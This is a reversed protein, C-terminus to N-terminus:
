LSEPPAFFSAPKVSLLKGRRHRIHVRGRRRETVMRTTRNRIEMYWDLEASEADASDVEVSSTVNAREILAVINARLQPDDEPLSALV